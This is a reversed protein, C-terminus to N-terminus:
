TLESSFALAAVSRVLFTPPLENALMYFVVGLVTLTFKRVKSDLTGFSELKSTPIRRAETSFTLLISVFKKYPYKM